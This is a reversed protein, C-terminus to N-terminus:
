AAEGLDIRYVAAGKVGPQGWDKGDEVARIVFQRTQVLNDIEVPVKAAGEAAGEPLRMVAKKPKTPDVKAWRRTASSVTSALAKAPEPRDETAAIFFSPAAIAGTTADKTAAPLDDFPYISTAAGGHGRKIEPLTTVVINFTPKTKAPESTAPAAGAPNSASFAIGAETARTALNGADDKIETNVEVLAPNHSALPASDAPAIFMGPVGAAVIAALLSLNLTVPAAKKKPAM